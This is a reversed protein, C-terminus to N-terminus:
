HAVFILLLFYQTAAESNVLCYLRQFPKHYFYWKHCIMSVKTYQLCIFTNTSVTQALNINTM